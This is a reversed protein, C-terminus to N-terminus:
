QWRSAFLELYSDATMDSLLMIYCRSNLKRVDDLVRRHNEQATLLELELKQIAKERRAVQTFFLIFPYALKSINFELKDGLLKRLPM